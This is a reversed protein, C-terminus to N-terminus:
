AMSNGSFRSGGGPIAGGLEQPLSTLGAGYISHHVQPNVTGYGGFYAGFTGQAQNWYGGSSQSMGYIPSGFARLAAPHASGKTMQTWGGAEVIQKVKSLVGAKELEALHEKIPVNGMGPVLHTDAFGFNDTLHVHKVMKAVEKTQEIIDEEKMGFKRHINVHGVDWTAGILREAMKEAKKKGVKEREMLLSTFNERSKEVTERLQAGTSIAGRDPDINELAIVPAKEGFKKYAEFAVEGFTEATKDIIFDEMKAFIQPAGSVVKGNDNKYPSTIGTLAKTYKDLMHVKAIPTTVTPMNHIKGSIKKKIIISDNDKKYDKSLAVLAKRQNDTGYKFASDFANQFKLESNHAFQDIRELKRYAEKEDKNLQITSEDKQNHLFIEGNQESPVMDTYATFLPTADDIIDHIIKSSEALSLLQKDWETSNISNVKNGALFKHGTLNGKDDMLEDPSDPSFMRTDEIKSLAGSEQNIVHGSETIMKGNKDKLINGHEDKKWIVTGPAGASAHFVVPINGDQDLIHAKEMVDSFRRQTSIRRSEDLTNDKWGAADMIPGHMSPKVGSLKMIARMEKFHQTPISQDTDGQIGLAQVEIVGTGSKITKVTEGLQDPTTPNMAQGISAANLRKNKEFEGIFYESSDPELGSFGGTYLSETSSTYEM